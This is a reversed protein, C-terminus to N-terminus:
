ELVLPPPLVALPPEASVLLVSPELLVAMPSLARAEFPIPLLLVATPSSARSSVVPPPLVAIPVAEPRAASPVWGVPASLVKMPYPLASDVPPRLLAVAIPALASAAALLAMTSPLMLPTFPHPDGYQESVRTPMPIVAGVARSCM